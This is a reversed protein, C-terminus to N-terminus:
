KGFLRRLLRPLAGPPVTPESTVPLHFEASTVAEAWADAGICAARLVRAVHAVYRDDGPVLETVKAAQEVLEMRPTADLNIMGARPGASRGGTADDDGSVRGTQVSRDRRWQVVDGHLLLEHEVVQGNLDVHTVLDFGEIGQHWVVKVDGDGFGRESFRIRRVSQAIQAPTAGM